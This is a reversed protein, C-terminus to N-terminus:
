MGVYADIVDKYDVVLMVLYGHLSCTPFKKGVCVDGAKNWFGNCWSM